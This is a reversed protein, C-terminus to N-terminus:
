GAVSKDEVAPPSIAVGVNGEGTNIVNGTSSKTIKGGLDFVNFCISFSALVIAIIVLVVVAKRTLM